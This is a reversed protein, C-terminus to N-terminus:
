GNFSFFIKTLLKLQLISHTFNWRSVFPLNNFIRWAHIGEHVHGSCIRYAHELFFFGSKAQDLHFHRTLDHYLTVLPGILSTLKERELNARKWLIEVLATIEKETLTDQIWFTVIEKKIRSVAEEQVEKFRTSIQSSHFRYTLLCEDLNALKTVKSIEFWMKYDEVHLYNSDYRIAPHDDLVQKRLMVTPHAFPIQELFYLMLNDHDKQYRFKDYGSHNLAHVWTGLAGVESNSEMFAVQKQLRAPDCVDDADMRALYKGTALEIGENLSAILKQNQKHVVLRIRSDTFSRIIELSEDSSGDDIIILEFDRFTQVLISEIAEALHEQANYVPMLVSVVVGM